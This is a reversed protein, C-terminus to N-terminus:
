GDVDTNMPPVRSADTVDTSIKSPAVDSPKAVRPEPVKKPLQVNSSPTCVSVATASSPSPFPVDVDFTTVSVTSVTAGTAGVIVDDDGADGDFSAVGTIEPLASAFAVMTTLLPTDFRPVVTAFGDPAQDTVSEFRASPL